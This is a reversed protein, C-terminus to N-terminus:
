GYRHSQTFRRVAQLKTWDSKRRFTSDIQSAKMVVMKTSVPMGQERLEFIWKLIDDEIPELCSPRGRCLTMARPNAKNLQSESKKWRRFQSPQIRFERCIKRLSEGQALRPQVARLIEQKQHNTYTKRPLKPDDM